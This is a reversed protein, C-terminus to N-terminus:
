VRPIKKKRLLTGNYDFYSYVFHTETEDALRFETEEYVVTEANGVVPAQTIEGSWSPVAYRLTGETMYYLRREDTIFGRVEAVTDPRSFFLRVRKDNQPMRLRCAVGEFGFARMDTVCEALLTEEGTATNVFWASFPEGERLEFRGNEAAVTDSSRERGFYDNFGFRRM